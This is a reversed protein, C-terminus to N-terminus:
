SANEGVGMLCSTTRPAYVRVSREQTPIARHVSLFQSAVPPSSHASQDSSRKERDLPSPPHPHASLLCSQSRRHSFCQVSSRRVPSMSPPSFFPSLDEAPARLRPVSLIHMDSYTM